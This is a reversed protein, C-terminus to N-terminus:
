PDTSLRLPRTVLSHNSNLKMCSVLVELPIPVRQGTRHFYHVSSVPSVLWILSGLSVSSGLFLPFVLPVYLDETLSKFCQWLCLPGLTNLRYSSDHKQSFNIQFLKLKVLNNM